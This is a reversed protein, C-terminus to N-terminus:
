QKGGPPPVALFKTEFIEAPVPKSFLFGQIEDCNVLHLLRSQEETEVGEAVVKLKLSHALNIITSVLALGEPGATMDIVFSRDIKLTNVPLKALYSLSSFGTGFDDIAITVGLARIAQLSTISHTVDEMILNETIELELGAAAQADIGIVRRIEDIFDRNRLQLPSVNVAIRVVPLGATRWRLYDEIAKRLAWRGVEYILGTEELIPIFRGPPVLGTRPDNWRILAEASTLKGSALNVKPQYHLVFEENDLAQRLQNELTFKGAVAETMKQTYFLYREGSAKAKKLAAEANRFLTDADAGDDPFLAIGVKAAIRFVADSLRFPHQLFREMWKEVLRAVDRGQKVEPMVVAFHDAGVRALLNVDRANRTLWEAVQKLLDDGASRGLTDNINKFRELDVMFLAVKHGSSAASRMYQAVREIFLSRNALGTLVDYYALYDIRAQKDLHDIAFAIDGALETLLKMEDEHFFEIERAYLVLAGVVEDSVILPLIVMSRIGFEAFKKGFLVRPDNLSNNSAIAKKESIALAILTNSAYEGSSLFDKIGTLLEEDGGVSAVPVFKMTSRDMILMMAMRLGGIEVAIRCADRFLEDRDHVRVILANIGSLVAHVHNLYLIRAEAAKRVSIDRIATIALTGENTELPILSIEIPFESGDRRLGFLEQDAGMPRVRPQAFFRRQYEPHESRFRQPMLIDIKQGLLEERPWGFLNVAQANVLVMEADRNVILMADPTSELLVKFKQEAKKRETIDQIMCLHRPHAKDEIKLPSITMDIWVVTGDPHLYRKEMQFRNIKGANLLAMNNLDAQVDDPHTIQLWDINAMEEMSRGAIEAFRPNVECIHGDLSDIMAIGLPAQVFMTKFREESTRLAHKAQTVESIDIAVGRVKFIAGSADRVAEGRALMWGHGGDARVTELELEYSAGTERTHSVATNLREWSDPTFHQSQDTYNTAPLAPDLGLMRYLEESWTVHGTAVDLEWNAMHAIRQAESLEAQYRLRSEEAQKRETIDRIAGVMRIPKGSGDRIALGKSNQWRYEGSSHLHRYDVDYPKGEELHAKIAASVREADDPHIRAAWSEFTHALAPDDRSYGLIECWRPAFYEKGTEIDWEWIGDSTAEVAREYRERTEQVAAEARKRETIDEVLGLLIPHGLQNITHQGCARIWGVEGDVHRIRCEFNWPMRRQMSEQFKENVTARDAPLVHELFMEYNWHPLLEKYGFIADHRLSRIATHDLLNLEWVGAQIADVAFRFWEGSAQAEKEAQKRETVDRMNAVIGRVAPDALLNRTLTEFIRWCGDKNRYRLEAHHVDEPVRLIKEMDAVATSVDDPHIYECINKGMMEDLEYGSLRKVAPSIYSIIGDKDIVVTVDSANEILAKFRIESAALAQEAQKRETIRGALALQTKIRALVIPPTIPKTIYDAAGLELGKEEDVVDAKATLFIVPIDRTKPDAKLRQCVEYGDMGPMMNDLLILDPPHDSAAIRLVTEGNNAVKVYYDDKLLGSILSIDDPTDDVVLVTAKNASLLADM